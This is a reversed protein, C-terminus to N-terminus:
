HPFELSVSILDQRRHLGPRYNKHFLKMAVKSINAGIDNTIEKEGPMTSRSINKRILVFLSRHDTQLAFFHKQCGHYKTWTWKAWTHYYIAPVLVFFIYIAPILLRFYFLLFWNTQIPLALEICFIKLFCFLFM